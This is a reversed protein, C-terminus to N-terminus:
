TTWDNMRVWGRHILSMWLLRAQDKSKEFVNVLSGGHLLDVTASGRPDLRFVYRRPNDPHALTLITPAETAIM